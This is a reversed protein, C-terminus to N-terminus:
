GPWEAGRHDGTSGQSGRHEGGTRQGRIDHCTGSSGGEAAASSHESHIISCEPHRCDACVVGDGGLLLVTKRWGLGAGAGGRAGHEGGRVSGSGPLPSLPCPCPAAATNINLHAPGRQM